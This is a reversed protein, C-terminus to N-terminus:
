AAPPTVSAIAGKAASSADTVVTAVPAPLSAVVGSPVTVARAAANSVSHIHTALMYGAFGGAGLGIILMLLALVDM